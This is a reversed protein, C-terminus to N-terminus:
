SRCKLFARTTDVLSTRLPAACLGAQEMGLLVGGVVPPAKLRVFHAKPAVARIAACMPEVLIPGGDFLSGVLVMEFDMTEFELQRTVGLALDALERGAWEIVERAAPDGDAAVKFVLPADSPSLAYRQECYGELLDEVDRAGARAILAPTLATAPGRRSWARSVRQVAARVVDNAGAAEAMRWGMGSVHGIRGQKDRGYCNCGTGAEIAVGWGERAGAVLGIVADNVAEFPGHFNLTERIVRRTPERESSWDYGAVGLGAGVIQELTLCAQALAQLTATRLAAALGEYGV